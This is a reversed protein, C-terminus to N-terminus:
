KRVGKVKSENNSLSNDITILSHITKIKSYWTSNIM